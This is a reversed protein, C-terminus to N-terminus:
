SRVLQNMVATGKEDVARRFFPNGPVFYGTDEGLSTIMRHGYEVLHAHPANVEVEAYMTRDRNLRTKIRIGDHLNGTEGIPVNTKVGAELIKIANRMGTRSVKQRTKPTLQKLTADLEKFGDVRFGFKSVSM